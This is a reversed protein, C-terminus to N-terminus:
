ARRERQKEEWAQRALEQHEQDSSQLSVSFGADDPVGKHGIPPTVATDREGSKSSERPGPVGIIQLFTLLPAAQLGPGARPQSQSAPDKPAAGRRGEVAGAKRGGGKGSREAEM